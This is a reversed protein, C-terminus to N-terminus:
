RLEWKFFFKNWFREDIIAFAHLRILKISDINSQSIKPTPHFFTQQASCALFDNYIKMTAISIEVIKWIKQAKMKM